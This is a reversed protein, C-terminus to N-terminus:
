SLSKRFRIPHKMGPTCFVAVALELEPVVMLVQQGNWNDYAPYSFLDLYPVDVGSIMGLEIAVGVAVSALSKSASFLAHM